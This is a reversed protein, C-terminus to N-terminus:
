RYIYDIKKKKAKLENFFTGVICWWVVGSSYNQPKTAPSKYASHVTYIYYEDFIPGYTWVNRRLMNWLHMSSTAVPRLNRM